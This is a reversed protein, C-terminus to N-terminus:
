SQEIIPIDKKMVKYSMEGLVEQGCIALRYETDIYFTLMLSASEGPSLTVSNLQGNHIFPKLVPLCKKKTFTNSQLYSWFIQISKVTNPQKLLLEFLLQVEIINIIQM